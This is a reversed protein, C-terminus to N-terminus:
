VKSLNRYCRLRSAMYELDNSLVDNLKMRIDPLAEILHDQLAPQLGKEAIEKYSVLYEFIDVPRKIMTTTRYRAVLTVRINKEEPYGVTKLYLCLGPIKTHYLPSVHEERFDLIHEKNILTFALSKCFDLTISRRLSETIAPM